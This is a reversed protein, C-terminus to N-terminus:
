ERDGELPTPATRMKEMRRLHEIEARREQRQERIDQKNRYYVNVILGVVGLLLGMLGLAENTTFWGLMAGLSGAATVKNTAAIVSAEIADRSMENSM